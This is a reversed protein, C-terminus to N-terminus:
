LLSLYDIYSISMHAYEFVLEAIDKTRYNQRSPALHVMGTLLDIIVTITDYTGNQDSSVPLPGVFDIGIVEWPEVPVPLLNLLRYLRQNNLKSMKCTGCSEHYKKIDGSITKWWVNDKLYM